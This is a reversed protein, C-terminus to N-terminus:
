CVGNAGRACLGKFEKITTDGSQIMVCVVNHTGGM